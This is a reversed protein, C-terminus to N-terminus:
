LVVASRSRVIAIKAIKAIIYRYASCFREYRRVAVCGYWTTGSLTFLMHSKPKLFIANRSLSLEFNCSNKKLLHVVVNSRKEELISSSFINIQQILGISIFVRHQM